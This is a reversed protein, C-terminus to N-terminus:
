YSPPPHAAVAMVVLDLSEDIAADSVVFDDVTVSGVLAALEDSWLQQEAALQADVVDSHDMSWERLRPGHGIGLVATVDLHEAVLAHLEVARLERSHFVNGPPFTLANPTSMLLRGGPRLVRACERVFGSQDWLHEITQASVVVDLSATAFPLAVLNARVAPVAPYTARVHRLTTSDLDVGVVMRAGAVSLRAAGYGEGCGAELVRAGVAAPAFLAYAAEHRRLWYNEHWIGPLTREGTLSLAPLDSSPVSAV